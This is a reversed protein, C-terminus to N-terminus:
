GPMVVAEKRAKRYGDKWLEVAVKYDVFILRNAWWSRPVGSVDASGSDRLKVQEQPMEEIPEGGMVTAHFIRVDGDEPNIREYQFHTDFNSYRVQLDRIEWNFPAPPPAFQAAPAAPAPAPAPAAPKVAAKKPRVAGKKAAPRKAAAPKTTRKQPRTRRALGKKAKSRLPTKKAKAKSRAKSKKAKVKKVKAKSKARAIKAKKVKRVKRAAKKKAM